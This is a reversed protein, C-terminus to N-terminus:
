FREAVAADALPQAPASAAIVAELVASPTDAVRFTVDMSNRIFAERRGARRSAQALAYHLGAAENPRIGPSALLRRMRVELPSGADVAGAQGLGRLAAVNGPELALARDFADTAPGTEGFNLRM